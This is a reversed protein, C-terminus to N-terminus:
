VTIAQSILLGQTRKVYSSYRDFQGDTHRFNVYNNYEMLYIADYQGVMAHDILIYITKSNTIKDTYKYIITWKSQIVYNKNASYFAEVYRSNRFINVTFYLWLFKTTLWTKPVGRSSRVELM